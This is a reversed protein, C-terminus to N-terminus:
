IVRLPDGSGEGNVCSPGELVVLERNAVFM